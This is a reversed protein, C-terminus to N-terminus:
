PVKQTMVTQSMEPISVVSGRKDLQSHLKRRLLDKWNQDNAETLQWSYNAKETGATLTRGDSSFELSVVRGPCSLPPTIPYGNEVEWLRVESNDFQSNWSATALVNGNPSFKM